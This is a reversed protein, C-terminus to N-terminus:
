IYEMILYDELDIEIQDNIEIIIKDALAAVTPINGVGTGLVIEGDDSVSQAEIIAVDIKGYTGQRIKQALESLHLDFYNVAQKNAGARLDKCGQYPTRKDLANARTLAGDTADNTSAGTFLNIKFERGAAHEREAKEAIATPVVKPTGAATFGSTGVNDGHKVYEAAEQATIIPFAM